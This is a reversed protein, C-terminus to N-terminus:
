RIGLKDRVTLRDDVSNGSIREQNVFAAPLVPEVQERVVDLEHVCGRIQTRDDGAALLYEPLYSLVTVDLGSLGRDRHSTVGHAVDVHDFLGGRGALTRVYMSM